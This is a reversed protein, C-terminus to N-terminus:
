KEPLVFRVQDDVAVTAGADTGAVVQMVHGPKLLLERYAEVVDGISANEVAEILRERSAFDQHRLDLEGWFRGVQEGLNKPKERLVTLVSARHQEFTDATMQGIQSMFSALFDQVALELEAVSAVPSQVLLGLGPVRELQMDVAAVVYGLQQETRLSHFFPAKIIQRLLLVKAREAPSDDRGQVYRMLVSDPHDLTLEVRAPQEQNLKIVPRQLVRAPPASLPLLAQIQSALAEADKALVNGAVLYDVSAGVFLGRVFVQLDYPVIKELEAALQQPRSAEPRATFGAERWVQRYPMDKDANRGDRVLRQRVREFDEQRWTMSSVEAAVKKALLPLKDSFGSVVFGFGDPRRNIGYSLGALLADYGTEVLKEDILALYLDTLAAGRSSAVLPTKVAVYIHQKPVKFDSDLYHWLRHQAEEVLLQPRDMAKAGSTRLDFSDPIFPNEQPLSLESATVGRSQGSVPLQEIGYDVDYLATVQDTVAEPATLVELVNDQRLYGLLESIGEGDFEDMMYPALLVHRPPYKHLASSVRMVYYSPNIPEQFRFQMAALESQERYRWAAIGQQKILAIQEFLLQRVEERHGLGAETLQVAVQFLASNEDDLAVGANLGNAWGRRKLESLLSGAGEYGLLSGIYALPKQRYLYRTSPLPFLLELERIEQEPKIKLRLPLEGPTFIPATIVPKQTTRNPVESFRDRVMTELQDLTEPGQVVLNMRNASYHRDYFDLLDERVTGSNRDALTDLNGVSFSSIPHDPNAVQRFADQQRRYDDKLKATYESHVAHKEREVYEPNFLPKVFFRSFRDLAEELYGPDIDFFYNTEDFATFANHSGGHSSIFEQYEDPQPYRDTGLFLMHELFHALGERGDPDSSSGVSVSLSAAAKDAERDSVLIVRLQNALELYRYERNDNPSAIIEGPAVTTQTTCGALLFFIFVFGSLTLSSKM